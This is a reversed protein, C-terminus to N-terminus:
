PKGIRRNMKGKPCARGSERCWLQREERCRWIGSTGQVLPNTNLVGPGALRWLKVNSRRKTKAARRVAEVERRHRLGRKWNSRRKTGAERQVVPSVSPSHPCTLRWLRANSRRRTKAAKRVARSASRKKEAETSTHKAPRGPRRRPKPEIFPPIERTQSHMPNRRNTIELAFYDMHENTLGFQSYLSKIRSSYDHVALYEENPM